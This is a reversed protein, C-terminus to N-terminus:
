LRGGLVRGLREGEEALDREADVRRSVSVADTRGSLSAALAAASSMADRADDEAADLHMLALRRATPEAPLFHTV